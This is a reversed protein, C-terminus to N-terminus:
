KVADRGDHGDHGQEGRDGRDGRSGREGRDGKALGAVSEFLVGRMADQVISEAFCPKGSMTQLMDHVSSAHVLNSAQMADKMSDISIALREVAQSSRTSSRASMAVITIVTSMFTLLVVAVIAFYNGKMLVDNSSAGGEAAHVSACLLVLVILSMCLIGFLTFKRVTSTSMSWGKMQPDSLGRESAARAALVGGL